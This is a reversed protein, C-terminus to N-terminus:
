DKLSNFQETSISNLKLTAKPILPTWVVYQFNDKFNFEGVRYIKDDGHWEAMNFYKKYHKLASPGSQSVKRSIFAYSYNNNAAYELQQRIMENTELSVLSKKNVFRYDDSKLFRNMIRVGNGFLPRHLISSFGLITDDLEYVTIALSEDIRLYTHYATNHKGYKKSFDTVKQCYNLFESDTKAITKVNVNMNIGLNM